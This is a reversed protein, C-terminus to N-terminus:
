GVSAAVTAQAEAFSTQAPVAGAGMTSTSWAKGLPAWIAGAQPINPTPAGDTGAVAFAQPLRAMTGAINAPARETIAAIQSQIPAPTLGKRVLGQAAKLVGHQDAYATVMFGKITLYPSPMIGKKIEPISSVRYQFTLTKLENRNWPGTIWYAARGSVFAATAAKEDLASNILGTSNWKNIKPMNAQFTPNTIGINFPDLSGAANKGFVYGGLGTFLPNMFYANGATGQAVALGVDVKGAAKLALASKSLATFTKPPTPVLAANTILAVNEYMVPVGYYSFGFKFGDLTRAAFQAKLSASLPLKRVLGASALEGTWDHEAWIVDPASEPAVTKLESRIAPLEKVVFTVPHGDYGKAFAQQLLPARTADTWVVIPTSAAHAGPAAGLAGVLALCTTVILIRLRM